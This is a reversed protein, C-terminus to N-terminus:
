ESLGQLFTKYDAILSDTWIANCINKVQDPESSYDTPTWTGDSALYGPNLTYRNFQRTLEVGDKKIVTAKRVQITFGNKVVEIRDYETSETLAM